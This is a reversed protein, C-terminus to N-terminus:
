LSEWVRRDLRNLSPDDTRYRVIVPQRVRIKHRAALVRRNVFFAPNWFSEGTYPGDGNVSSKYAIALRLRVDGRSHEIREFQRASNERLQRPESSIVDLRSIM